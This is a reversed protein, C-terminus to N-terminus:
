KNGGFLEPNILLMEGPFVKSKPKFLCDCYDCKNSTTKQPAGCHPCEVVTQHNVNIKQVQAIGKSLATSTRIIGDIYGSIM